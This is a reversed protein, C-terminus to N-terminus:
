SNPPAAAIRCAIRYSTSALARETAVLSRKNACLSLQGAQLVFLAYSPGCLSTLWDMCAERMRAIKPSAADRRHREVGLGHLAATARSRRAPCPLHPKRSTGPQGSATSGTHKNRRSNFPGYRGAVQKLHRDHIRRWLASFTM